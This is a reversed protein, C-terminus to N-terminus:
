KRGRWSAPTIKEYKKFQKYFRQLSGFGSQEAIVDIPADSSHMLKKSHQIKRFTIEEHLTRGTIKKFRYELTRRAAPVKQLIDKVTIGTHASNIIFNLAISVLDDETILIRTSDREFIDLPSVTYNYVADNQRRDILSDLLKAATFGIQECNVAISSLTPNALECLIDENDVGLVAIDSPVSLKEEIRSNRCTKIIKLGITDNAAFLATPRSLSLLWKKLGETELDLQEWWKLPREFRAIDHIDKRFGELRYQSWQAGNVGAWAFHNHGLRSLYYGAKIGTVYDDNNVEFFGLGSYADAVDIIPIGLKSLKAGDSRSEIRAIIGDLKSSADLGYSFMWDYGLLNWDAKQRAYQIIGRAIGRAYADDITIYLGINKAPM